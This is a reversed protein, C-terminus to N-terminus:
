IEPDQLHWNTVNQFAIAARLIKDEDLQNGLLQVGIPLGSSSFGAPISIGPIGALNASVTYIDALYMTLPDDTKEGLKWAPTPSTPTLLLDVQDFARHFDEIILTRVQMAKKYYADYYGSSLVYTGMMIRRKAEAGFGESRSLDYIEALNNAKQSRVGYRIGDFRALNSSVEAPMIVYYVALANKTSPLSVEIFEAGLKKFENISSEIVKAVEGDLGDAFYEKPLGVKLGKLPSSTDRDVNVEPFKGEPLTTSDMPDRGALVRLVLAADQASRTVPGPCDLSSAMAILGYRSVRGYTPKLGTVGSLSAPQRISGGTDTGISALGMGAAVAATSGGSSGGPVMELNWPNHTPGFDSNETSGGHAWADCNVKGLIVAGAQRLKQVVTADYPPIFNALLNSAATTKLNKTAIIDKVTVPIGDLPGLTEGEQRRRDSEEAQAIAEDKNLALFAKVRGDRENIRDLHENALDIARTEGRELAKQADVITKIM